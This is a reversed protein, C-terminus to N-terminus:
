KILHFFLKYLLLINNNQKNNSGKNDEKVFADTVVWLGDEREEREEEEEGDVGDEGDEGEEEETEGTDEWRTELTEGGEDWGFDIKYLEVISEEIIDCFLLLVM